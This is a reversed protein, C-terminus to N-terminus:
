RLVLDCLILTNCVMYATAWSHRGVYMTLPIPLNLQKGIKKLLHNVRHLENTYQKQCDENRKTIIPLLYETGNVPYKDVIEQMCREWKIFLQQGAKRRRYSLIGNQLDKKKLYAMDIFSMGGTYFYFLFMDRAFNLNPKLSLDLGKIRKLENLSIARKLTKEVGTYVSKCPHRQGTLGEEVARNYVAKLIRMYFSITNPSNGRSKLYAEYEAILDANLQDFLVEKDNMFGSFSRLAAMYTESTHIKGLRKLRAIQQRVYSNFSQEQKNDQFRM